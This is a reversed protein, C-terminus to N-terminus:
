LTLALYELLLVTSKINHHHVNEYDFVYENHQILPHQNQPLTNTEDGDVDHPM